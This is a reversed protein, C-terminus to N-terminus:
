HRRVKLQVASVHEGLTLLLPGPRCRVGDGHGGTLYEIRKCNKGYESGATKDGDRSISYCSLVAINTTTATATTTTTTATTTTATYCYYYYYYYDYAM